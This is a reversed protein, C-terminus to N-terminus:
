LVLVKVVVMDVSVFGMIRFYENLVVVLDLWGYFFVVLVESVIRFVERGYM